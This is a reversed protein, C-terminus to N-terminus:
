AVVSVNFINQISENYNPRLIGKETIIGTIHRAPTVDFAPNIAKTGKVCIPKGGTALVEKPDREEVPIEEGSKISLDFTSLPAAVYFPINNEKALVALQYTGIKNATDGNASIRDAGTIVLDIEGKQMLYGCATDSILTCDIGNEICEFTTLRAGQQRPRTEAVFIKLNPNKKHLTLIVGFATGIGGTALSGTNCITLLSAILRSEVITAGHEGIKQCRMADDEHIWIARKTIVDRLSAILQTEVSAIDNLILDIAWKLNIATPRASKIEEGVARMYSVFEEKGGEELAALAMGYGAVIGILPAGRVTMDKIAQIVEKYTTLELYKKEFPLLRQDLVLLSPQGATEVKWIIPKVKSQVQKM